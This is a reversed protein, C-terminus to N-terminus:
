FQGKSIIDDLVDDMGYAKEQVISQLEKLSDVAEKTGLIDSSYYVSKIDEQPWYEQPISALNLLDNRGPYYHLTYKNNSKIISWLHKGDYKFFIESDMEGQTSETILDPNSIMANIATIIKSM